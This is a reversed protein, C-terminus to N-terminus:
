DKIAIADIEILYDGPLIAQITTRAPPDKVFFQRYVDNMDKFLSMDRLYVGVRVVKELSCGSAELISKVNQLALKTQEVIGEPAIRTKPDIGLQGSVFVFNNSIVAQSYPGSPSPARDTSIVKRM